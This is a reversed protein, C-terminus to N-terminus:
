GTELPPKAQPREARGREVCASHSPDTNIGTPYGHSVLSAFQLPRPTPSRTGPRQQGGGLRAGLPRATLSLCGPVCTAGPQRTGRGDQSPVLSPCQFHPQPVSDTTPAHTRTSARNTLAKVGRVM